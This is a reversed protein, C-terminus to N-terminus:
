AIIQNGLLQFYAIGLIDCSHSRDETELKKIYLKKDHCLQKVPLIASTRYILIRVHIRPKRTM